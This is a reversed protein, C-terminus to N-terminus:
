QALRNFRTALLCCFDTRLLPEPYNETHDDSSQEASARARNGVRTESLLRHEASRTPRLGLLLHSQSEPMGYRLSWSPRLKPLHDHCRDSRGLSSTRTGHLTRDSPTTLFMGRARCRRNPQRHM